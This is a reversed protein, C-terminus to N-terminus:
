FQLTVAAAIQGTFIALPFNWPSICAFVGRGHRQLENHEGTPGPLVHPTAFDRRAATAYYRCFDVAERLEALADVVTKGGERVCLTMLEARHEEFLEAARELIAARENAGRRDWEAAAESASAVAREVTVADPTELATRDALNLGASNRRDPYIYRPLPIRPHPKLVRADIEAVPDAVLVDIPTREDELRHVFSTNAGNELLRRVLYPLLDEHSGVPAYVRCPLQTDARHLAELFLAEGMGHLRQFEFDRRRGAVELIAAVSHANHTAFQPFIADRADIMRKACALYSVDTSGKRTYVPYGPLGLQQARKIESDWYAGKVLRVPIRKGQARSLDFLWNLVPLARKQYAQVALGLGEGAAFESARFAAKFLDLSIDLRDAEEAVLTIGIGAHKAARVLEILRPLLEAMVRQPQAYEYRPHLASLKVSISPRTFITDQQAGPHAAITCIAQLYAATYREADRETLAAEGLMDFSHRYERHMAETSRALAEEITRGMVFQEGLIRMAQKLALRIVPEGLRAILRAFTGRTARQLDPALRVVRGTLMLGWTSANVWLSHSHGLHEDWDGKGLRDRILRDVTAADPIRLLAEALCMLVVGEQSSLDYEQLFAELTGQRRQQGRVAIVLERARSAIRVRADTDLALGRLLSEVCDTEDATYAAAIVQRLPSLPTLPSAFLMSTERSVMKIINRRAGDSYIDATAGRQATNVLLPATTECSQGHTRHKTLPPFFGAARLQMPRQARRGGCGCHLHSRAKGACHVREILFRVCSYM